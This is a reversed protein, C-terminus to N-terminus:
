SGSGWAWSLASRLVRVRGAVVAPGAGAAQWRAVAARVLYPTLGAARTQALPDTMLFRVVSRYGLLTSPKWPQDAELWAPLLGGVTLHRASPLRAGAEGLLRERNRIPRSDTAM